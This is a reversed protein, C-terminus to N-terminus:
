ARRVEAAHREVSKRVSSAAAEISETADAEHAVM